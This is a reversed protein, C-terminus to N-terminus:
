RARWARVMPRGLITGLHVQPSSAVPRRDEHLVVFKDGTYPNYSVVRSGRRDLFWGQDGAEVVTGRVFAHVNKRKEKLVRQRGAESVKFACDSLLVFKVHAIVRRTKVSRLSYVRKHLNFYVDVQQGNTEM